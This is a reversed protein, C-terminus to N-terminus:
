CCKTEKVSLIHKIAEASKKWSFGACHARGMEILAQRRSPDALIEKMRGTIAGTDQPDFYLAADGCVEQVPPISAALVPCGLAMAELPPIGFGEYLSPFVLALAHRYLAAIEGDTLRGAMVIGEPVFVKQRGFVKSSAAGIVAFSVDRRGLSMFADIARSLNKRPVPSGVFLFYPRGRLRLRDLVGLDPQPRLIHEYGDPIVPIRGAELGLAGALEQRSFGSVTAITARRALLRGLTRHFFRYPLSYDGPMRYILADHMVVLHDGHLFPGSNTLSLLRGHRAALWLDWQEWAHGQLKGCRKFGIVKLGEPAPTGQPAILMVAPPMKMQALIGDLEWVIERAFREVGTVPKKLFRGNIFIPKM